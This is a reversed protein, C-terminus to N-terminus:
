KVLLGARSVREGQAGAGRQPRFFRQLRSMQVLAFHPGAPTVTVICAYEGGADQGLDWGLIQPAGVGLGADVGREPERGRAPSDGVGNQFDGRPNPEIPTQEHM